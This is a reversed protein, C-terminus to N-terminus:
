QLEGIDDDTIDAEAWFPALADRVEDGFGNAGPENALDFIANITEADAGLAAADAEIVQWFTLGEAQHAAATDADDAALDDEILSAYRMAAQSYTIWIARRISDAADIAAQDDQALLGDRGQIMAALIQENVQSMSGDDSMTGFNGARSDATAYPACGPEAGHYFAWAEDWNHVAGEVPDLEGDEAKAVATNLEHVVWAVLLRNQIGKEIGQARVGASSGEFPGSGEIAATIFDDLPTESDYYDDLGHLQDTATAFGALTRISGDPNVSNGGERYISQIADYDIEDADLLAAIECVDETILHHASVDTAYDYGGDSGISSESDSASASASTSGSAMASASGSASGSASASGSDATTEEAGLDRVTAGDDSGCAALAIAVVLAIGSLAAPGRRTRDPHLTTSM